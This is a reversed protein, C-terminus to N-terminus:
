RIILSRIRVLETEGENIPAEYNQKSEGGVLKGVAGKPGVKEYPGLQGVRKQEPGLDEELTIGM